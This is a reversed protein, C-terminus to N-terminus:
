KELEKNEFKVIIQKLEYLRLYALRWELSLVSQALLRAKNTAIYNGINLIVSFDNIRIETFPINACDYWNILKGMKEKASELSM